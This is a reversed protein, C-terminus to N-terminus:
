IDLFTRITKLFIRKGRNDHALLIGKHRAYYQIIFDTDKSVDNYISIILEKDELFLEKLLYHNFNKHNLFRM